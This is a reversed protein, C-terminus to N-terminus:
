FAVSEGCGCKEKENPNNFVFQARFKEEIFDMESGILYMVATPEVFIKIGKDEVLEEFKKHEKAYEIKYSHGSCGGPTIGVRLGLIEDEGSADILHKAREAAKDTITILPAVM